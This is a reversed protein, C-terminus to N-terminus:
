AISTELAALARLSTRLRALNDKGLLSIWEQEAQAVIVAADACFRRGKASLRVVSARGDTPDPEVTLYGSQELERVQASMAQRTMEARQALVVIRTGDDDLNTFVAAHSTRVDSYGIAVLRESVRATAGRFARLLLRGLDDEGNALAHLADLETM